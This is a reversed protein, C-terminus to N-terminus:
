VAVGSEALMDIWRGHETDGAHPDAVSRINYAIGSAVDTARWDNRIARTDPSARVRIIVPQRGALRAAEITEGGLRPTINAACEFMTQWGSSVNGFDDAVQDPRAFEIRRRLDGAGDLPMAHM